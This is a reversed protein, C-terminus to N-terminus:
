KFLMAEYLIVLNGTIWLTGGDLVEFLKMRRAKATEHESALYIIRGTLVNFSWAKAIKGKKQKLNFHWFVYTIKIQVNFIFATLTTWTYCLSSLYKIPWTSNLTFINIWRIKMFSYSTFKIKGFLFYHWFLETAQGPDCLQVKFEPLRTRSM